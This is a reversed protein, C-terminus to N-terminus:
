SGAPALSLIIFTKIKELHTFFYLPSVGRMFFKTIFLKHPGKFTLLVAWSPSYGPFTCIATVNRSLSYSFLAFGDGMKSSRLKKAFLQCVFPGSFFHECLGPLSLNAGVAIIFVWSSGRFLTLCFYHYTNSKTAVSGCGSSAGV